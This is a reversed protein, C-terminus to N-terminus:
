SCLAAATTTKGTGPPGHILSLADQRTFAGRHESTSDTLMQEELSGRVAAEQPPNLRWPKLDM